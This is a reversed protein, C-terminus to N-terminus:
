KQKAKQRARWGVMYTKMYAKWGEKDYRRLSPNRPEKQFVKFPLPNGYVDKGYRIAPPRNANCCRCVPEVTDPKNYDRHDYHQAPAGCDVCICEKVPKLRGERVAKAVAYEVSCPKCGVSCDMCYKAKPSYADKGCVACIGRKM